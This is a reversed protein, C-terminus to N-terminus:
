AGPGKYRLVFKETGKYDGPSPGKGPGCGSSHSGVTEFDGPGNVKTIVEIHAGCDISFDGPEAKDLPIKDFTKDDACYSSTSGMYFNGTGKLIVANTFGSCDVGNEEGAFKNEIRRELDAQDGHGGEWTYCSNFEAGWAGMEIAAQLIGQGFESESEKKCSGSSSLSSVSKGTLEEFIKDAREGRGLHEGNATNAREFYDHFIRAAGEPTANGAPYYHSKRSFEEGNLAEPLEIELKQGAATSRGQSTETMEYWMYELQVGLCDWEKGREKAFNALGDIREFCWQVIGVCGVGVSGGYQGIKNDADPMFASEQEM